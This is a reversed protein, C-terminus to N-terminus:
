PSAAPTLRGGILEALDSLDYATLGSHVLSSYRNESEPASIIDAWSRLGGRLEVSEFLGPEVAAAHLVPTVLEGSAVVRV